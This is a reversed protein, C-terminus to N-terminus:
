VGTLTLPFRAPREVLGKEVLATAGRVADARSRGQLMELFQEAVERRRTQVLVFGDREDRVRYVRLGADDDRIVMQLQVAAWDRWDIKWWTKGADAILANLKKGRKFWEGNLRSGRFRYHFSQELEEDGAYVGEIRLKYPHSTQLSKLRADPDASM